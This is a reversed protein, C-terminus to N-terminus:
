KLSTLLEQKEKFNKLLIEIQYSLLDDRPLICAKDATKSITV